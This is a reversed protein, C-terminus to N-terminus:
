TPGCIFIRNLGGRRYKSYTFVWHPSAGWGRSAILTPAERERRTAQNGSGDNETHPRDNGANGTSIIVIVGGLHVVLGLFLGLTVLSDSPHPGILHCVPKGSMLSERQTLRV